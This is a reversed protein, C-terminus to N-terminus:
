DAGHFLVSDPVIMKNIGPGEYSVKLSQGGTGEFYTVRIPHVGARLAIRGSREIAAHLGDNDVTLEDGIFLQSGDDSNLYFTYLGDQDVKIYGVFEFAFHDDEQRPELTFNKVIGTALAERPQFHPLKQFAGSSGGLATPGGYYRYRVGTKLDRIGLAPEVFQRVQYKASYVKLPYPRPSRQLPFQYDYFGAAKVVTDETLEFPGTYLKSYRTPDSGDLTYRVEDASGLVELKVQIGDFCKGPEPHFKIVAFGILPLSHVPPDGPWGGAKEVARQIERYLEVFPEPGSEAYGTGPYNGQVRRGDTARLNDKTICETDRGYSKEEISNSIALIRGEAWVVNGIRNNRFYKHGDFCFVTSDGVTVSWYALNKEWLNEIGVGHNKNFAGGEYSSSMADVIINYGMYNGKSHSYKMTDWPLKMWGRGEAYEELYGEPLENWRFGYARYVGFTDALSWQSEQKRLKQWDKVGGMFIGAWPIAYFFNHRIDNDGSQYFDIGHMSYYGVLGVHHIYNRQIIHGHNVDLLGVGYGRMIIGGSGVFGIENGTLRCRQAHHNLLIGGMGCNVIHCAEMTCDQVGEFHIAAGALGHSTQLVADPIQDEAIRDGHTIALGKFQIHCVFDESTQPYEDRLTEPYTPPAIHKPATKPQNKKGGGWSAGEDYGQLRIVHHLKAAIVEVHNMTDVRPWYFVEGAASDVCWEGPRDLCVLANEIRYPYGFAGYGGTRPYRYTPIKSCRRATNAQPTVDRLVPIGFSWNSTPLWLEADGNGPVHDLAGDPFTLVQGKPDVPGWKVIDPMSSREWINDANPTRARTARLGDVFVNRFCWGKPVEAVWLHGKAQVTVDPRDGDYKRWGDIIRGGSLIVKEGPYAAYIIPKGEAGSDQPELLFTEDLFYRGGRIWVTVGGDPLGQAQKLQRIADRVAHLTALPEEKTGAQDDRGNTAVYLEVAGQCLCSSLMVFLLVRKMTFEDKRANIM